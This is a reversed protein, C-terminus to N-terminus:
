REIIDVYVLTCTYDATYKRDIVTVLALGVTTFKKLDIKM